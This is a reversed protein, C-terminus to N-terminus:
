AKGSAFVAMKRRVFGLAGVAPALLWIAAPLPVAAVSSYRHGNASFALGPTVADAYMNVTHSFDLHSEQFHGGDFARDDVGVGLSTVLVLFDGVKGKMNFAQGFNLATPISTFLFNPFSYTGSGVADGNYALTTGDVTYATFVFFFTGTNYGSNQNTMYPGNFPAPRESSTAGDIHYSSIFDVVSGAALGNGIIPIYETNSADFRGSVRGGLDGETGAFSAIGDVRAGISGPKATATGSGAASVVVIATSGPNRIDQQSGGAILKGGNPLLTETIDFPLQTVGKNLSTYGAGTVTYTSVPAGYTVPGFSVLASFAMMGAAVRGFFFHTSM